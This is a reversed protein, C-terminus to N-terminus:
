PLLRRVPSLTRAKGTFNPRTGFRDAGSASEIGARSIKTTPRGIRIGDSSHDRTRIVM